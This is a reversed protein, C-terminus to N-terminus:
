NERANAASDQQLYEIADELRDDGWFMERDHVVFTPAGFIGLSRAEDTAATYAEAIAASEALQVVRDIPQGIDRLCNGLNSSEGAPLGEQMWYHYTAKVYAECWGERAALVAIRNALDFNALPYPVPVDIAVGIRQARRQLDRWMYQEKAPKGVFPINNMEQMLARVSFPHWTVSIDAASALEDLRQITLYTYTSGISFWFQLAAM